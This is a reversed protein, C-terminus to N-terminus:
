PGLKETDKKSPNTNKVDKKEGKSYRRFHGKPRRYREKVRGGDDMPERTGKPNNNKLTEEGKRERNMTKKQRKGGL